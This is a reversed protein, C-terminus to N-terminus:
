LKSELRRKLAAEPGSVMPGSAVACAGIIASLTVALAVSKM